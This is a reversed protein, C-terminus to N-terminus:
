QRSFTALSYFPSSIEPFVSLYSSNPFPSFTWLFLPLYHEYSLLFFCLLPFGSIKSSGGDTNLLFIFTVYILFFNGLVPSVSSLFNLIATCSVYWCPLHNMNRDAMSSFRMVHSYNLQTRLLIKEWSHPIMLLITFVAKTGGLM